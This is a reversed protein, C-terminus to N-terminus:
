RSIEPMVENRWKQTFEEIPRVTRVMASSGHDHDTIGGCVLKDFILPSQFATAVPRSFFANLDQATGTKLNGGALDPGDERGQPLPISL